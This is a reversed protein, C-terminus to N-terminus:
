GSSFTTIRKESIKVYQQKRVEFLARRTIEEESPRHLTLLFSHAVLLAQLVLSLSVYRVIELRWFDDLRKMDADADATAVTPRVRSSRRRRPEEPASASHGGQTDYDAGDGGSLPRGDGDDSFDDLDLGGNGGHMYVTKSRADYVVQHAYRPQPWPSDPDKDPVLKSWKGPVEPHSYRYIWYPSDAELLPSSAPRPRMLGGFSPRPIFWTLQPLSHINPAVYVYIERTECDIVARQTFCPDPGGVAAFSSFLETVTGTPIHFTYMDALYREERQGGFIFLTQSKTDLVM